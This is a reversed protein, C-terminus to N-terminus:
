QITDDLVINCLVDNNRSFSICNGNCSRGGAQVAFFAQRVFADFLNRSSNPSKNLTIKNNLNKMKLIKPCSKISSGNHKGAALTVMPLGM